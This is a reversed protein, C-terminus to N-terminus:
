MSNCSRIRVVVLFRVPRYTEENAVFPCQNELDMTEMEAKSSRPMPTVRSSNGTAGATM